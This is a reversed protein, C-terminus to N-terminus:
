GDFRGSMERFGRTGGAASSPQFYTLVIPSVSENSRIYATKTSGSESAYHIILPLFAYGNAAAYNMITTINVVAKTGAAGTPPTFDVQPGVVDGLGGAGGPWANGPSWEDWTVTGPSVGAVAAKLLRIRSTSGNSGVNDNTFTLTASAVAPVGGVWASNLIIRGHVHGPSGTTWGLLIPNTSGYNTTSAGEDIFTDLSLNLTSM